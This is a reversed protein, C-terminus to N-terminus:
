HILVSSPVKQGRVLGTEWASGRSTRWKEMWPVPERNSSMGAKLVGIREEVRDDLYLYACVDVSGDAVYYSSKTSPLMRILGFSIFFFCASCKEEYAVTVFDSKYKFEVPLKKQQVAHAAWM